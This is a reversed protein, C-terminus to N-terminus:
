IKSGHLMKDTYKMILVDLIASGGETCILEQYKAHEELTDEGYMAVVDDKHVGHLNLLGLGCAVKETHKYTPHKMTSKAYDNRFIASKIFSDALLYHKRNAEHAVIETNM